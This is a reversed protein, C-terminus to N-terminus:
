PRRRSSLSLWAGRWVGASFAVSFPLILAAFSVVENGPRRHAAAFGGGGTALALAAAAARRPRHLALTIGALSAPFAALVVPFFRTEPRAFADYFVTGRRVSHWLFPRLADRNRYLSAFNPSIHIRDRAALARFLLTDDNRLHPDEYHSRYDAVAELLWQRPALFQTAGKPFRDYNELTYSTTRPQDFYDAFAVHTLVNWFRAYPSGLNAMMCHGNWAQEGDAVQEAVWSLAPPALQTRSDLLLIYDGRAVELGSRRAAFRGGNAKRLVRVRAGELTPEPVPPDSGDDVIVVEPDRWASGRLSASLATLTSSLDEARENYVPVIVSLTPSQGPGTRQGSV